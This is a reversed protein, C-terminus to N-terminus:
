EAEAEVGEELEVGITEAPGYEDEFPDFGEAPPIPEVDPPSAPPPAALSPSFYGDRREDLRAREDDIPPAAPPAPWEPEEKVAIQDNPGASELPLLPLAVESLPASEVGGPTTSPVPSVGARAAVPAGPLVSRGRPPLATPSLRNASRPLITTPLYQLPYFM